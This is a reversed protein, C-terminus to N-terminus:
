VFAALIISPQKRAERLAAIRESRLKMGSDVPFFEMGEQEKM